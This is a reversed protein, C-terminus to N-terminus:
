NGEGVRKANPRTKLPPKPVESVGTYDMLEDLARQLEDAREAVRLNFRECALVRLRAVELEGELYYNKEKLQLIEDQLDKINVEPEEGAEYEYILESM